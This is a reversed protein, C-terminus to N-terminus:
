ADVPRARGERAGRKEPRARRGAKEKAGEQLAPVQRANRWITEADLTPLPLFFGRLAEIFAQAQPSVHKHRRVLIGCLRNPFLHDLPRSVLQEWDAGFNTGQLCLEDMLAVGLRHWVYRLALHYNSVRIIANKQIFDGMGSHRCWCGLDDPDDDDAFAVYPLRRLDDIDPVLPINWPNDRHMVLLPRSKFLVELRDDAPKEIVPLLGFDVRSDAVDRRVESSLGRKVTLEVGPHRRLFDVTTPVSLSAIPLTAAVTVAGKLKGGASGVSARMSQLAEFTTIAWDLLKTGEPTIRLSKKYRDFLVTNLAEELSRIQYSITSPNRHMHEAARRVSGTKAVWYFGRLWQLFDGNLEDIM